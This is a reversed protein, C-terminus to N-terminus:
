EEAGSERAPLASVKSAINSVVAALRSTPKEFFSNDVIVIRNEVFAALNRIEEPLNEANVNSAIFILDPNAEAIEQPTIEYNAKEKAINRGFVSLIDSELTDGTAAIGENTLIYVFNSGHMASQASFLATDLESLKETTMDDSNMNGYFIKSIGAYLDVLEYYTKPTSFLVVKTGAQELEVRDAYSIPSLSILVDPRIELIKEIDPKAPSGVTQVYDIETPFNCYDSKGVIRENLGIECLIETVAPSLSVVTLPSEVFEVQQVNVPYNYSELIASDALTPDETQIDSCGSLVVATLLIMLILKKM